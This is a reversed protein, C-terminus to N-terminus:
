VQPAPFPRGSEDYVGDTTIRFTPHKGYDMKGIAQVNLELGRLEIAFIGGTIRIWYAPPDLETLVGVEPLRLYRPAPEDYESMLAHLNGQLAAVVDSAVRHKIEPQLLRTLHHHGREQAIDVPRQGTSTRLTRWAGNNLLFEVVDVPAGHWAAQHLPTYHRKGNLRVANAWGQTDPWANPKRYVINMVRPWNGNRAADALEDRRAAEDEHLMGRDRAADWKPTRHFDM